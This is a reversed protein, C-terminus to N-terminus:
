RTFDPKIQQLKGQVFLRNKTKSVQEAIVETPVCELIKFM